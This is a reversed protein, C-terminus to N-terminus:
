DPLDAFYDVSERRRKRRPVKPPQSVTQQQVWAALHEPLVIYRPRGCRTPATNVARMAGSQIWARIRDHGVRLLRAVERPTYGRQLQEAAV